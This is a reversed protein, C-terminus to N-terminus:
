KSFDKKIITIQNKMNNLDSEIERALKAAQEYKKVAQDLNFGEQYFWDIDSKLQDM